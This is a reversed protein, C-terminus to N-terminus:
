STEARHLSEVIGTISAARYEPRSTRAARFVRLAAGAPADPLAVPRGGDLAALLRAGHLECGDAGANAADLITVVPRGDCPAPDAPHAAPCRWKAPM